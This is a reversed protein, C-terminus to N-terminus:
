PLAEWVDALMLWGHSLFVREDLAAFDFMEHVPNHARLAPMCLASPLSM